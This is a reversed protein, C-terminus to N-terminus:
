LGRVDDPGPRVDGAAVTPRGRPLTPDAGSLHVVM